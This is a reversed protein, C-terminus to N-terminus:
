RRKDKKTDSDNTKEKTKVLLKWPNRKIDDSFEEFNAATNKFKEIMIDVNGRNTVVMEDLHQTLKRIDGATAEIETALKKATDILEEMSAPDEGQIITGPKLFLAGSPGDTLEVYKEGMLGLMSVYAKSGERVKASEKLILTLMIKTEDGNYVIDVDKVQGAEVGRLRVPANKELGSVWNFATKLEYTKESGMFNGLAVTFLALIGLSILILFGTKIENAMGKAM